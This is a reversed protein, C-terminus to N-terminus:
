RAPSVTLTPFAGSRLGVWQAAVTPPLVRPLESDVVGEHALAALDYRDSPNPAASKLLVLRDAQLVAALRGAIADSTTQWGPALKHGPANPEQERLWNAADFAAASHQNLESVNRVLPAEPLLTHMLAATASMLDIALWHTAVPDLHHVDALNRLADVYPGGGAVLVRRAPDRQNLWRRLREGLDPLDFLSGGVKVVEVLARM